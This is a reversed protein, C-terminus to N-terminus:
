KRSLSYVRRRAAEAVGGLRRGMREYSERRYSWDQSRPVQELWDCLHVRCLDNFEDPTLDITEGTLRNRVCYPADGWEVAADFSPRDMVCNIWAMREAREGILERVEGRRELPLCFKQFRQTGYISHFMGARCVDEPCGWAQLDRYVGVLHALFGKEGTHPIDETGLAVLFDVMRRYEADV